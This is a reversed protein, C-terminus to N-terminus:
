RIRRAVTNRSLQFFTDDLVAFQQQLVPDDEAILRSRRQADALRFKAETIFRDSAELQAMDRALQLAERAQSLEVERSIGRIAVAHEREAHREKQGLDTWWAPAEYPGRNAPLHNSRREDYPLVDDAM